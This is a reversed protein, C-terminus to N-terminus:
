LADGSSGPGHVRPLVRDVGERVAGAGQGLERPERGLLASTRRRRLVERWGERVHGRREVTTLNVRSGRQHPRRSNEPAESRWRGRCKAREGGGTAPAPAEDAGTGMEARER